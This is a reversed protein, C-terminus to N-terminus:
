DFIIQELKTRKGERKKGPKLVSSSYTSYACKCEWNAYDCRDKKKYNTLPGNYHYSLYYFSQGLERIRLLIDHQVYQARPIFLPHTANTPFFGAEFHDIGLGSTKRLLSSFKSYCFGDRDIESCNKNGIVEWGKDIMKKMIENCKVNLNDNTIFVATYHAENCQVNSEIKEYIPSELDPFELNKM